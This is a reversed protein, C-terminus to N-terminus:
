LIGGYEVDMGTASGPNEQPPDGVGLNTNKAFKKALFQLIFSNPGGPADRAGGQIRWHM